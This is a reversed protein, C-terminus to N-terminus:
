LREEPLEPRPEVLYLHTPRQRKPSPWPPLETPAVLGALQLASWIEARIFDRVQITAIDKTLLEVPTPRQRRQQEYALQRCTPSCFKPVRRRGKIKIKSKCRACRKSKPRQQSPHHWPSTM